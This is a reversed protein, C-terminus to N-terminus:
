SQEAGCLSLVVALWCRTEGAKERRAWGERRIADAKRSARSTVCFGEFARGLLYRNGSAALSVRRRGGGRGGSGRGGRAIVPAATSPAAAAAAAALAAIVRLKRDDGVEHVVYGDGGFLLLEVGVAADANSRRITGSSRGASSEAAQPGRLLLLLMMLRSVGDPAEHGM